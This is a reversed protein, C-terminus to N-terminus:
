FIWLMMALTSSPGVEESDYLVFKVTRMPPNEKFHRLLEM